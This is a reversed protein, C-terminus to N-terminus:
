PLLGLHLQTAYVELEARLSPHSLPLHADPQRPLADTAREYLAVSRAPPIASCGYFVGDIDDYHGYIARSWDRARSRAGSSIAANGGALTVWDSDAVDLLRVTRLLRFLVFFPADRSLELAGREGFVEAVCTRLVPLAHRRRAPLVATAYMVGRDHAGRPPPHHDFRATLPGFFRFQSWATPFRGSTAHIRGLLHGPELVRVHQPRLTPFLSVDPPPLRETV